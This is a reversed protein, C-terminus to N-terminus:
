LAQNSIGPNLPPNPYGMYAPPPTEEIDTPTKYRDPDQMVSDYAPPLDVFGPPPASPLVDQNGNTQLEIPIDTGNPNNTANNTEPQNTKKKGCLCAYLWYFGVSSGIVIGAIAGGSLGGGSDYNRCSLAVKDTTYICESFDEPLLTCSSLYSEGGYCDINFQHTPINSIETTDFEYANRYEGASESGLQRCLVESHSEKWEFACLTGWTGYLYVEAIGELDDNGGVLRADFQSHYDYESTCQLQVTNYCYFNNYESTSCDLLVSEGGNCHFNLEYPASGGGIYYGAVWDEPRMYGLQNCVVQSNAETWQDDCVNTWQENYYVELRGVNVYYGDVLRVSSFGTAASYVSATLTWLITVELAFIMRIKLLILSVCISGTTSVALGGSDRVRLYEPSLISPEPLKWRPYAEARSGHVVLTTAVLEQITYSGLWPDARAYGLQRCVVDASDDNWHRDCVRGWTGNYYVELRGVNLYVGDVLRVEYSPPESSPTASPVALDLEIDTNSTAPESTTDPTAVTANANTASTGSTARPSQSAARTRRAKAAKHKECTPKLCIHYFLFSGFLSGIVIGAIAGGSFGVKGCTPAVDDEHTCGINLKNAYFVCDELTSEKGTCDIAYGHVTRSIVLSKDYEDLHGTHDVAGEYGLQKCVVKGEDNDWGRSCVTRWEGFLYVELIGGKNAGKIQEGILRAEGQAYYLGSEYTCQIKVTSDCDHNVDWMMNTCEQLNSESGTCSFYEFHLPGSGEQITYSGLWPDARAYGLQRCVVDASDDNWHRDCVRGWTGNYYVELRGVNLYVGDVLRVDFNNVSLIDLLM